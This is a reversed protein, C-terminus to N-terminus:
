YTVGVKTTLGHLMIFDSELVGMRETWKEEIVNLM